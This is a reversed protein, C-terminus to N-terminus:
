RLEENDTTLPNLLQENCRTITLGDNCKMTVGDNDNGTTVRTVFQLLADNSCLIVFM